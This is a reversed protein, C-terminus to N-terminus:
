RVVSKGDSASSSGSSPVLVHHYRPIGDRLMRTYPGNVTQPNYMDRRNQLTTCSALMLGALALVALSPKM